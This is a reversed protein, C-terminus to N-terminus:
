KRYKGVFEFTGRDQARGLTFMQETSGSMGDYNFVTIIPYDRINQVVVDFYPAYVTAELGPESIYTGDIEGEYLNRYYTSHSTHDLLNM